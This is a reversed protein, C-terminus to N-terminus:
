IPKVVYDYAGVKTAEIATDTTHHATMLIIPLHPKAPHLNKIVDLGSMKRTTFQLDTVVVDFDSSQARALGEEATPATEVLHRPALVRQLAEAVGVDDEILLIRNM